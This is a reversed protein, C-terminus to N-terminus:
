VRREWLSVAGVARFGLARYVGAGASSAQLTAEIPCCGTSPPSSGDGRFVTPPLSSWFDPMGADMRTRLEADDM